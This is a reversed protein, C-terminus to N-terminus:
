AKTIKFKGSNLFQTCLQAAEKSFLLGTHSVNIKIHATQKPHKTEEILVSGDSEGPLGGAIVGLGQNRTGAIMGWDRNCNWKPINEGSLASPMSKALLPSVIPWGQIKQAIWSGNIPSGLMVVRGQPIDDFQDFLHMTIIGGLSHAVIHLDVLNLKKIKETTPKMKLKGALIKLTM